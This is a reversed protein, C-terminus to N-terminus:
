FAPYNKEMEQFKKSIIIAVLWRASVPDTSHILCAQVATQWAIGVNGMKLSLNGILNLTLSQYEQRIHHLASSMEEVFLKAICTGLM